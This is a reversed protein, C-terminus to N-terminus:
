SWFCNWLVTWNRLSVWVAIMGDRLVGPDMPNSTDDVVLVVMRGPSIHGMGVPRAAANGVSM